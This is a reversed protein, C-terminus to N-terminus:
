RNGPPPTAHAGSPLRTPPRATLSPTNSATLAVTPRRLLPVRHGFHLPTVRAAALLTPFPVCHLERGVFRLASPTVSRFTPCQTGHRCQESLAAVQVRLRRGLCGGVSGCPYSHWVVERCIPHTAPVGSCRERDRRPLTSKTPLTRHRPSHPRPQTVALTWEEALSRRDHNHPQAYASPTLAPSATQPEPLVPGIASSASRNSRLSGSLPPTESRFSLWNGGTARLPLM